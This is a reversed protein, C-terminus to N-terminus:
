SCRKLLREVAVQSARPTSGDMSYEREIDLESGSLGLATYIIAYMPHDKLLTMSCVMIFLAHEHEPSTNMSGIITCHNPRYEPCRLEIMVAKSGSISANVVM